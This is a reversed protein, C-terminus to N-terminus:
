MTGLDEPNAEALLSEDDRVPNEPASFMRDPQVFSKTEAGSSTRRGRRFRGTVPLKTGRSTALQRGTPRETRSYKPYVSIPMCFFALAFRSFGNLSAVM